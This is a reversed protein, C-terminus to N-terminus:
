GFRWRRQSIQYRIYEFKLRGSRYRLLKRGVANKSKQESANACSSCTLCSEECAADRVVGSGTCPEDSFAPLPSVLSEATGLSFLFSRPSKTNAGIGIELGANPAPITGIKPYMKGSRVFSV